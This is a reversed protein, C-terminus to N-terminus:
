GLLERVAAIVYEVQEDAMGAFMPLFLSERSIAETIPLSVDAHEARYLPELHIPPIGRRCAVGRESLAAMLADRGLRAEPRLRVGYSQFTHPADATGAPLVLPLDAFAAAYRAALERRQRLLRDLKSLQVVGVAAQIDSLRYNYGLEEYQEFATAAMGHRAFASMSAGHSRLREARAAMEDDDVTLMGGEGTSIMKRPHFSFCAVNGHSGIPRGRHTAGVACAADEVIAVGAVRLEEFAALEAPLGVQHVVILAKTRGSVRARADVPDLNWTREDVEAFVPRAGVYRVANATAVFSLSPCIVEDGPGVGHLLLAVHLAATCNSMAVAHRAGVRGAFRREFELTKPGQAVWASALVEAVAAAEREDFSPRAFPVTSV